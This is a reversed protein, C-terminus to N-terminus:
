GEQLSAKKPLPLLFSFLLANMGSFVLEATGTVSMASLSLFFCLTMGMLFLTFLPKRQVLLLSMLWGYVVLTGYAFAVHLGSFFDEKEGYPLLMVLVVMAFLLLTKRGWDKKAYIRCGERYFIWTYLLGLSGMCLVTIVPRRNLLGTYNYDKPSLGYFPIASVAFFLVALLIRVAFASLEQPSFKRM